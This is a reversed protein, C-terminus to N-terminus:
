RFGGATQSTPPHRFGDTSIVSVGIQAQVVSRLLEGSHGLSDADVKQGLREGGAREGAATDGASQFKAVKGGRFTLVEAKDASQGVVIIRTLV